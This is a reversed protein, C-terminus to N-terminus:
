RLRDLTLNFIFPQSRLKFYRAIVLECSTAIPLELRLLRVRFAVVSRSEPVRVRVVFGFVCFLLCNVLGSGTGTGLGLILIGLSLSSQTQSLVELTPPQIKTRIRHSKSAIRRSRTHRPFTLRKM